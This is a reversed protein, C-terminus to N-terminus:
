IKSLTAGGSAKGVGTNKGIPGNSKGRELIRVRAVLNNYRYVDYMKM